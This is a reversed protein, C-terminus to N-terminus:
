RAPRRLLGDLERLIRLKIELNETAAEVVLDCDKLAQNGVATQIRKLAAAKGDAKLKDKQVLRDLNKDITGVGRQLAADNIDVMTVQLGAVACVQAIGNGMTGAGIVGIHRINM